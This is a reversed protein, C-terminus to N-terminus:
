IDRVLIWAAFYIVIMMLGTVILWVAFNGSGKEERAQKRAELAARVSGAEVVERVGPPLRYGMFGALGFLVSMAGGTWLTLLWANWRLAETYLGLRAYPLLLATLLSYITATAAATGWFRFSTM